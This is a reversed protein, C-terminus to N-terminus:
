PQTDSVAYPSWTGGGDTTGLMSGDSSLLYGYTPNTFGFYVPTAVPGSSVQRPPASATVEEIAPAGAAVVFATRQDRAALILPRRLAGTDVDHWFGLATTDTYRVITTTAGACTVWLAGVGTAADGATSLSAPDTGPPCASQRQWQQGDPSLYLTPHRGGSDILGVVGNAAALAHVSTMTAGVNVARWDDASTPSRYLVATDHGPTSSSVGAYVYGGWAELQTVMGTPAHAASWSLGSDHTSWLANGYAWGDYVGSGDARKAFRLQSVSTAVPSDSPAPPAPLQGRDSWTSGHDSTAFVTACAAAACDRGPTKALVWQHMTGTATLSLPTVETASIPGGAHITVSGAATPTRLPTSPSTSPSTSPPISPTPPPTSPPTGTPAPQPVTAPTSASESTVPTRVGPRSAAPTQSADLFGGANVAAGGGALVLVAAAAVTAGRKLRRARAGRHVRSLFADADVRETPRPGNLASRLRREFDDDDLSM